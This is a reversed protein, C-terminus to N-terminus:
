KGFPEPLLAAVDQKIIGGRDDVWIVVGRPMLEWLVQRCVGCPSTGPPGALALARFGRAGTTVASALAVREACLTVGYSANEINVGVFVDGTETLVAAGIKLGSYPAYARERAAKAAALLDVLQQDNDM